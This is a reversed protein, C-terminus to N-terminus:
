DLRVADPACVDNITINLDSLTKRFRPEYKLRDMFTDFALHRAFFEDYARVEEYHLIRNGSPPTPVWDKLRIEVLWQFHQM